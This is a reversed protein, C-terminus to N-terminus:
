INAPRRVLCPHRHTRLFSVAQYYASAGHTHRERINQRSLRFRSNGDYVTIMLGAAMPINGVGEYSEVLLRTEVANIGPL